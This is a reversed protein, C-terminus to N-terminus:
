TIGNIKGLSGLSFLTDPVKGPMHAFHDSM